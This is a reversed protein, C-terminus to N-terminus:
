KSWVHHHKKAVYHGILWGAASGLLVDTPFHEQGVVRTVSVGTAASYVALQVWKSPYEGALVGAVSWALVSHSSPFSSNGGAHSSFFDGAANNYLPRDRRSVIKTVEEVVVGDVLAEGSLIGTERAHANEGFLGVGYLAVPIAIEGGLLYNSANVYDKNLKPDHSLNRMADTDTALTLGAAAGLPALWLLDRARIRAPSTWIAVQDKVLALPLGRETVAPKQPEPADPLAYAPSPSSAISGAAFTKPGALM